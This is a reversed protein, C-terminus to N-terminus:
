AETQAEAPPAAPMDLRVDIWSEAPVDMLAGAVQELEGDDNLAYKIKRLEVVVSGDENTTGTAIGLQRGGNRDTPSGVQWGSAALGLSGTVQYRGTDLRTVEIGNAEENYAGWEGSANFSDLLDARSSGAVDAIRAIPSARKIFGSADVTTNASTWLEAWTTFGSSANYARYALRSANISMALSGFSGDAHSTVLATGFSGIPSPNTPLAYYFLGGCTLGDMNQIIPAANASGYSGIGAYGATVVRGVTGDTKSSVLNAKSATGLGAIATYLEDFNSQAKTFASRPTDGGVGTPAAGLNITQKAM